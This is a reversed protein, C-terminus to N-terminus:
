CGEKGTLPLFRNHYVMDLATYWVNDAVQRAWKCFRAWKAVMVADWTEVDPLGQVVAWGGSRGESYVKVHLGWIEEADTQLQDWNDECAQWFARDLESDSLVRECWDLTFEPDTYHEVIPGWEGDPLLSRTGGLDLPLFGDPGKYVKVNCAPLQQHGRVTIDDKKM